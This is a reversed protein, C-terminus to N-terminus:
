STRAVTRRVDEVSQARGLARVTWEISGQAVIGGSANMNSEEVAHMSLPDIQSIGFQREDLRDSNRM